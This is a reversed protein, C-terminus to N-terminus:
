VLRGGRFVPRNVLLGQRKRKKVAPLVGIRADRQQVLRVLQTAVSEFDEASEPLYLWKHLVVHPMLASFEAQLAAHQERHTCVLVGRWPEDKAMFCLCIKDDLYAAQAGFMARLAFTPEGELPEWVWAYPHPKRIRGATFEPM